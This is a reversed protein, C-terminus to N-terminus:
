RALVAALRSCRLREPPLNILASCRMSWSALLLSSCPLVTAACSTSASSSTCLFGLLRLLAAWKGGGHGTPKWGCGCVTARGCSSCPWCAPGAVALVCNGAPGAVAAGVGHTGIKSVNAGVLGGVFPGFRVFDGVSSGVSVGVGLGGGGVIGGLGHGVIPGSGVRRGVLSGVSTGVFDGVRDGVDSGVIDGV